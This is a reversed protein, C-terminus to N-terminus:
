ENCNSAGSRSGENIIWIRFVPKSTLAPIGPAQQGRGGDGAQGPHRQLGVGAWGDDSVEPNRFLLVNVIYPVVTQSTRPHAGCMCYQCFYPIVLAPSFFYFLIFNNHVFHMQFNLVYISVPIKQLCFVVRFDSLIWKHNVRILPFHDYLTEVYFYEPDAIM